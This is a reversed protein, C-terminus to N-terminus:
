PRAASDRKDSKPSALNAVLKEIGQEVEVIRRDEEGLDKANRIRESIKAAALSGLCTPVDAWTENRLIVRMPRDEPLFRILEAL